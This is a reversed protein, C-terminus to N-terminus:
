DDLINKAKRLIHQLFVFVIPILIYNFEIEFFPVNINTTFIVLFTILIIVTQGSILSIDLIRLVITNIGKKKYFFASYGAFIITFLFVLYNDTM